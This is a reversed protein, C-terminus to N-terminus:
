TDDDLVHGNSGLNGIGKPAGNCGLRYKGATTSIIPRYICVYIYM